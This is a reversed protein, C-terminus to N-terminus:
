GTTLVLPSIRWLAGLSRELIRDAFANSFGPKKLFGPKQFASTIRSDCLKSKPRSRNKRNQTRRPARLQTPNRLARTTRPRTRATRHPMRRPKRRPTPLRRTLNVETTPRTSDLGRSCLQREQVSYAACNTNRANLVNANPPSALRSFCSLHIVAPTASTTMHQCPPPRRGLRRSLPSNKQKTDSFESKRYGM